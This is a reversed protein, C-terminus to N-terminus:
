LGSLFPGSVHQYLMPLEAQLKALALKLDRVLAQGEAASRGTEALMAAINENMRQVEPFIETVTYRWDSVTASPSVPSDLIPRPSVEASLEPLVLTAVMDRVEDVSQRLVSVHDRILLELTQRSGRSLRAVTEPGYRDRLRRLAWAQALAEQVLEM